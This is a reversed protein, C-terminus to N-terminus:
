KAEGEPSTQDLRKYLAILERILEAALMSTMLHDQAHVMLMNVQEPSSEESKLFESQAKQVSIGAEASKQILEDAEAYNGNRAAELAQFALSREEGSQAIITMSNQDSSNIQEMM